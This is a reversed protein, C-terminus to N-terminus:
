SAINNVSLTYVVFGVPNEQSEQGVVDKKRSLEYPVTFPKQRPEEIQLMPCFETQSADQFRYVVPNLSALLFFFFLWAKKVYLTALLPM